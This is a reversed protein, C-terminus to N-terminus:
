SATTGPDIETLGNFQKITGIIEVNDGLLFSNNISTNFVDIGGTPDQIFYEIGAGGRFDISTVVGRIKVVQNLRDSVCDGPPLGTSPDVDTRAEAITILPPGGAPAGLDPRNRPAIDYSTGFPRFPDDQQIISVVTFTCAPTALGPIDTDKDIKLTFSGTGDSITLFADFSAGSAPITGSTVTCNVIQILQAEFAEPNALLQAITKATPVPPGGSATQTIAYPTPNGVTTPIYTTAIGEFPPSVELRLRGTGNGLVGAVTYTNGTTTGQTAPVSPQLTRWVNIAGSM